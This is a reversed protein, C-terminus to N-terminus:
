YQPDPQRYLTTFGVQIVLSMLVYITIVVGGTWLVGDCLEESM